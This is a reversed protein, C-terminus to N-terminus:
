QEEHLLGGFRRLMEALSCFFEPDWFYVGILGM